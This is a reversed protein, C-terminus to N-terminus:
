KTDSFLSIHLLLTKAEESGLMTTFVKCTPGPMKLMVIIM